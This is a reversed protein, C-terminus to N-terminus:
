IIDFIKLVVNQCQLIKKVLHEIKVITEKCWLSGYYSYFIFYLYVTYKNIYLITVTCNM